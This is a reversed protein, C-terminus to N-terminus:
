FRLTVGLGLTPRTPPGFSLGLNELPVVHWRDRPGTSLRLGIVLGAAAGTALGVSRFTGECTGASCAVTEALAGLLAGSASGVLLGILGGRVRGSPLPGSSVEFRTLARLPVTLTAPEDTVLVLDDATLTQLTGVDRGCIRRAGMRGRHLTCDHTVRVRAGPTVLLREQGLLSTAGPM